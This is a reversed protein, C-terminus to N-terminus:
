WVKLQYINIIRTALKRTGVRLDHSNHVTMRQSHSPTIIISKHCYLIIHKPTSSDNLQKTAGEAGGRLTTDVIMAELLMVTVQSVIVQM